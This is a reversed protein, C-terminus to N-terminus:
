DIVAGISNTTWAALLNFNAYTPLDKCRFTWQDDKDEAVRFTRSSLESAFIIRGGFGLDQGWQCALASDAARRACVVEVPMACYKYFWGHGEHWDFSKFKAGLWRPTPTMQELVPKRWAAHWQSHEYQSWHLNFTRADFCSADLRAYCRPWLFGHSEAEIDGVSRSDNRLTKMPLIM